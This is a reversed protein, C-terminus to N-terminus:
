VQLIVADAPAGTAAAVADAYLQVQRLYAPTRAVLERDARFDVITWRGSEEFALDVTGRRTTWGRPSADGSDRPSVAVANAAQARKM